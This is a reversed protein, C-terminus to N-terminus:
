PRRAPRTRRRCRLRQLVGAELPWSPASYLTFWFRGPVVAAAGLLPYPVMVIVVVATAGAVAVDGVADGLASRLPLMRTLHIVEVSWLVMPYRYRIVENM